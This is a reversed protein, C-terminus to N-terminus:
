AMSTKNRQALGIGLTGNWAEADNGVRANFDRVLLLMDQPPVQAIVSQLSHYFAETDAENGPENTLAYVAIISM